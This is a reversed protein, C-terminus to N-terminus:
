MVVRDELSQALAAYDNIYLKGRVLEILGEQALKNLVENVRPRSVNAIESLQQQTIKIEIRPINTSKKSRVLELLFFAIREEIGYFSLHMGQVIKPSNTRMISYLLKYVENNRKALENLESKPFFLSKLPELECTYLNIKPYIEIAVAGVWMQKGFIFSALPRNDISTTAFTGLGQVCYYIGRQQDGDILTSYRDIGDIEIALDMIEAKTIESLECPWQIQKTSLLSM